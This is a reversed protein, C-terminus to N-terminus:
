AAEWMDKIKGPLFEAVQKKSDESLEEKTASFVANIVKTGTTGRPLGGEKEIRLIFTDADFKLPPRVKSLWSVLPNDDKWLDSIENQLRKNTADEEIKNHLEAEIAQSAEKSMLDRMTRYVLNTLDRADFIDPLEAKLAVKELFPTYKDVISTSVGTRLAEPPNKEMRDLMKEGKETLEARKFRILHPLPGDPAGFTNAVRFDIEDEDILNPVDEQRAYANGSFDANIYQKQNLYDLHGLFDSITLNRGTFDTSQFDVSHKGKDDKQGIKKLLIYMVDDKLAIPM